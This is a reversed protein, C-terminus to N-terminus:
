DELEPILVKMDSFGAQLYPHYILEWQLSHNDYYMNIYFNTTSDINKSWKKQVTETHFEMLDPEYYSLLYEDNYMDEALKGEAIIEEFASATVKIYYVTFDETDVLIKLTEENTGLLEIYWTMFAVSANTDVQANDFIIYKKWDIVNYATTYHYLPVIQEILSYQEEKSLSVEMGSAYYKKGGSIGRAFAELREKKNAYSANLVEIDLSSATGQWTKRVQIHDRITFLLGPGTLSLLLLLLVLFISIIYKRKKLNTIQKTVNKKM